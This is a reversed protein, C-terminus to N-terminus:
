YSLAGGPQASPLLVVLNNADKKFFAFADITILPSVNEVIHLQKERQFSKELESLCIQEPNLELNTM